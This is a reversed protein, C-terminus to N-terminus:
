LYEVNDNFEKDININEVRDKMDTINVAVFKTYHPNYFGRMGLDNLMDKQYNKCLKYADSFEPHVLKDKDDKANKWEDLTDRCVGIDVAFREFTPLRNAVETTWKVISGDKNEKEKVISKTHNISFFTIIDKCYIKKYKPPRGIPKKSKDETKLSKKVTKSKTKIKDVM